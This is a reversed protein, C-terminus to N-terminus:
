RTFEGGIWFFVVWMSVVLACALVGEILTQRMLPGRGRSRARGRCRRPARGHQPRRPHRTSAERGAALHAMCYRDRGFGGAKFSDSLEGEVYDDGVEIQEPCRERGLWFECRGAKRATRIRYGNLPGGAVTRPM